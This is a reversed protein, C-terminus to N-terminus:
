RSIVPTRVGLFVNHVTYQAPPVVVRYQGKTLLSTFRYSGDLGSNMEAVSKWSATPGARHQLVTRRGPQTVPLSEDGCSFVCDFIKVSGEIRRAATWAATTTTM